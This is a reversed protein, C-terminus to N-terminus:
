LDVMDLKKGYKAELSLLSCGCTEVFLKFSRVLLHPHTETILFGCKDLIVFDTLHRPMKLQFLITEKLNKAYEGGVVLCRCQIKYLMTLTLEKRRAYGRFYKIMSDKDMNEFMDYFYNSRERSTGATSFYRAMFSNTLSDRLFQSKNGLWSFLSDAFWEKYSAICSIPNILILGRLHFSYNMAYYSLVNCGAGVGLAFFNTIKLKKRITEIQTALELLDFCEINKNDLANNINKQNKTVDFIHHNPANIHVFNFYQFIVDYNLLMKIFKDFCSQHNLGIDHYTVIIPKSSNLDGSIEIRQIGYDTFFDMTQINNTDTKQEANIESNNNSHIQNNTEGMTKEINSELINNNQNDNNTVSLSQKMANSLNSNNVSEEEKGDISDENAIQNLPLPQYDSRNNSQKRFVNM